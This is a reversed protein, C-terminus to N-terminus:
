YRVITFRPLAGNNRGRHKITPRHQLVVDGANLEATQHEDTGHPIFDFAGGDSVHIVQVPPIKGMDSHFRQYSWPDQRNLAFSRNARDEAAGKAQELAKAIAPYGLVAFQPTFPVRYMNAFGPSDPGRHARIEDFPLAEYYALCEPELDAVVAPEIGGRVITLEGSKITERTM